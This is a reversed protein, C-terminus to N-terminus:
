KPYDDKIRPDRLSPADACLRVVESLPVQSQSGNSGESCRPPRPSSVTDEGLISALVSIGDEELEFPSLVEGASAASGANGISAAQITADRSATLDGGQILEILLDLAAADSAPAHPPSQDM